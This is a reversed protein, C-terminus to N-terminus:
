ALASSCPPRSCRVQWPCSAVPPPCHEILLENAFLSYNYTAVSRSCMQFINNADIMCYNTKFLCSQCPLSKVPSPSHASKRSAPLAVFPNYLCLTDILVLHRPARPQPLTSTATCCCCCCCCCCPLLRASAFRRHLACTSMSIPM